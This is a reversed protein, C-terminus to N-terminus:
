WAQRAKILLTVGMTLADEVVCVHVHVHMHVHVHVRVRLTCTCACACVCICVCVCSQPKLSRREISVVNLGITKRLHVLFLCFTNHLNNICHHTPPSLLFASAASLLMELVNRAVTGTLSSQDGVSRGGM